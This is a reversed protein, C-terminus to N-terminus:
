REATGARKRVYPSLAEALVQAVVRSGHANLHVDGFLNYPARGAEVERRLAPFTDIFRIDFSACIKALPPGFEASRWRAMASNTDSYRLRGQFVRRSDPICMVWPRLGQARATAGWNGMAVAFLDRRAKPLDEWRPPPIPWVTAPYERNGAAFVANPLLRVRHDGTGPRAFRQCQDRLAVVLSVQKQWEMRHGTRRIFNTEQMEHFLDTVDNGDFFCLVADTTAPAKGYNRVYATQFIPGTGSVGLNKIRLGLQKAAITTFMEEEPLYGSEVFSDGTVVVEWDTLDTPNRFGLRDYRIEIPQEEPYANENGWRYRILSSLPKGRWSAPGPRRLIGDGAHFSPPRNFIPVEHPLGDFDFGVTRFIAEGLGLAFAVSLVVLSARAVGQSARGPRAVAGLLIFACGSVLATGLVKPSGSGDLVANVLFTVGILVLGAVVPLVRKVVPYRTNM